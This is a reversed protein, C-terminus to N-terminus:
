ARLSLAILTLLYSACHSFRYDTTVCSGTKAYKECVREIDTAHSKLISGSNLTFELSGSIVEVTFKKGSRTNLEKGKLTKAFNVLCDASLKTM